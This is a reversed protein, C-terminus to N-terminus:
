PQLEQILRKLRRLAHHRSLGTPIIMDARRRKEADPLQRALIATLREPTMGPRRLVRWRQIAAPATVVVVLDCRGQGRTEFLLPVDLVM